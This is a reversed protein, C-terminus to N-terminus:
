PRSHGTDAHRVIPRRGAMTATVETLDGLVMTLADIAHAFPISLMTAGNNRDLMYAESPGYVPGWMEGSAILSTSLVRGVYGEDILDALYRLPPASRGQLGVFTRLRKAEAHAAMEEAEAVSTALPWECLVMKGALLAASVIERHLPAKVAVVVLQVENRAVLEETSAFALPVHYKEGAARASEESSASLARLEFGELAALAPVHALGAWGRTAGLGVIGVGIPVPVSHAPPM